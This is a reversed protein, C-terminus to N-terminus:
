GFICLPNSGRALNKPSILSLAWLCLFLDFVYLRVEVSPWRGVVAVERCRGPNKTGVTCRYM